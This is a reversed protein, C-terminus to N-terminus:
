PRLGPIALRTPEDRGRLECLRAAENVPDGMVTYEFRKYAGANQRTLRELVRGSRQAMSGKAVM